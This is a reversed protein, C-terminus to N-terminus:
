AAVPVRVGSPVVVVPYQRGEREGWLVEIEFLDSAYKSVIGQILDVHFLEKPNPPEHEVDPAYTSNDFGVVLFGGNRNRLALTARVIKGIGAPQTPDIWRKLETNLSETPNEIFEKIVFRDLM